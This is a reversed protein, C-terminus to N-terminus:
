MALCLLSFLLLDLMDINRDFENAKFASFYILEVQM